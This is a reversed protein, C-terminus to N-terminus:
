NSSEDEFVLSSCTVGSEAKLLESNDITLTEFGEHELLAATEPHAAPVLAQGGIALVNAGRPEGPPVAVRELGDLAAVDVWAENVLVREDDLPCCASKLHLCGTVMVPRVEYGFAAVTERLQRIGEENTRSSVGVYLARGMRFVDGGELTAPPTIHLLPRFLALTPAIRECEARRSAAGPRTIIAIEDLVLAPDEVFVADPLDPEAPLKLVRLGMRALCARYADHQRNAVAVDIPRRDLHTLECENISPSVDRTIATLMIPDYFYISSRAV